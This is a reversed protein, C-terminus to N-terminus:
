IIQRIPQKVLMIAAPISGGGFALPPAAPISVPLLSQRIEHVELKAACSVGMSAQTSLPRPWCPAPQERQESVPLHHAMRCFEILIALPLCLAAGGVDPDALYLASNM